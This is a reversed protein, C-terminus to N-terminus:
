CIRLKDELNQFAELKKNESVEAYIDMTTQIDAHGMIDQIVKLNTENECLRTCFTHRFIHVSFNRMLVPERNEKEALKQEKKNYAKVIRRIAKNIVQASHPKHNDNIFVFNSVGGIEVECSGTKFQKEREELLVKRVEPLM